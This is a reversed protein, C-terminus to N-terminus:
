RPPAYAASLRLARLFVAYAYRDNNVGLDYPSRADPYDFAIELVGDGSRAVTRPIPIRHLQQVPEDLVLTTVPTDNASVLVRQQPLGDTIFPSMLVDLMLNGPLDDVGFRFLTREGDSWAGETLADRVGCRVIDRRLTAQDGGFSLEEGLQYNGSVDLPYCATERAIFVSAYVADVDPTIAFLGIAAEMAVIAGALAYTRLM